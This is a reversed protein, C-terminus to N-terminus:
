PGDPIWKAHGDAYVVARGGTGSAYGLVTEAPSEGAPAGGREGPGRLGGRRRRALALTADRGDLRDGVGGAQGRAGAPGGGAGEGSGAFGHVGLGGAGAGGRGEEDGAFRRRP